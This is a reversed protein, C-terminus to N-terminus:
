RTEDLRELSTTLAELRAIIHTIREDIVAIRRDVEVIQRHTLPTAAQLDSLRQEVVSLRANQASAWWVATAGEVFIALALTLFALSTGINWAKPNHDM